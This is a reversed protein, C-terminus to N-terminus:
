SHIRVPEGGAQGPTIAGALLNAMVMNFCHSFSVEYGLSLSMKQIRLAWLSFSVFRLVIAIVLFLINIHFLYYITETNFTSAFVALM